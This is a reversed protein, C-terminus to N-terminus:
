TSAGLKKTESRNMKQAKKLENKLNNYSATKMFGRDWTGDEDNDDDDVASIPAVTKEKDFFMEYTKGKDRTRVASGSPRSPLRQPLRVKPAEHKAVVFDLEPSRNAHTEPM